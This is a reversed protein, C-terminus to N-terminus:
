SSKRRHIRMIPKPSFTLIEIQKAASNKDGFMCIPMILNIRLTSKLLYRQLAKIGNWNGKLMDKRRVTYPQKTKLSHRWKCSQLSNEEDINKRKCREDNSWSREWTSWRDCNELEIWAHWSKRETDQCWTRLGKVKNGWWISASVSNWNKDLEEFNLKENWFVTM